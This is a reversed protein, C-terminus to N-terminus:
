DGSMFTKVAFDENVGRSASGFGSQGRELTPLNNQSAHSYIENKLMPRVTIGSRNFPEYNLRWRRLHIDLSTHM